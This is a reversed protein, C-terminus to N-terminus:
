EPEASAEPAAPAALLGALERWILEELLPQAQVSPHIGDAQLLGPALFDVPELAALPAQHREAVRRFVRRFAEGYRRGYNPTLAVGVLLVRAGQSRAASAMADLNAEIDAAPFGRLGDNGGLELILVDPRHRALLAPLRRRGGGTTDGSISANVIQHAAGFSQLRAELLSVWGQERKMGYAASISDGLVLVKAAHAPLAGWACLAFCFALRM